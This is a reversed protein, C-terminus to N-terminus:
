PTVETTLEALVAAARYVAIRRDLAAELQILIERRLPLAEIPRDKGEALRAELARLIAEFDPGQSPAALEQLLAAAAAARAALGSTEVEAEREVARVEADIAVAIAQEEGARPLRLALGVHAVDEDGERGLSSSLSWRSRDRAAGLRLLSAELQARAHVAAFGATAKAVVPAPSSSAPAPPEALTAPAEPLPAWARLAEWSGLAEARAQALGLRAGQLQAAVIEAEFPPDAGAEVRQRALALWREVLAADRERLRVREAAAWADVYADRVVRSTAARAAARVASAAASLADLLQQREGGRRLLAVELDVAVDADTLDASRRPGVELGLVPAERQRSAAEHVARHADGLEVEARLEAPGARRQAIVRDLTITPEATALVALLSLGLM